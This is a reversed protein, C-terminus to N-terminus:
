GYRSLYDEGNQTMKIYSDGRSDSGAGTILGRKQLLERTLGDLAWAPFQNSGKLKKLGEVTKIKLVLDALEDNNEKM